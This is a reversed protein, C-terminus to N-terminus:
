VPPHEGDPHGHRHDHHARDGQAPEVEPVVEERVDQRPHRERHRDEADHDHDRAQVVRPRAPAPAHGGPRRSRVAVNALSTKRLFEKTFYRARMLVDPGAGDPGRCAAPWTAAVSGALMRARAWGSRRRMRAIRSSSPSTVAVRQASTVPSDTALQENWRRM